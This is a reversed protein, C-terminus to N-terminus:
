RECGELETCMTATCGNKTFLVFFFFSFFVHFHFRFRSSNRMYFIAIRRKEEKKKAENEYKSSHKEAQDTDAGIKYALNHSLFFFLPSLNNAKQKCFSFLKRYFYENVNFSSLKFEIVM